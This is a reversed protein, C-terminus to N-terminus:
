PQVAAAAEAAAAEDAARQADIAEQAKFAAIAADRAAKKATADSVVFAVQDADLLKKLNWPLGVAALAEADVRDLVLQVENDVCGQLRKTLDLGVSQFAAQAEDPVNLEIKM